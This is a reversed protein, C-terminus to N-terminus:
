KALELAELMQSPGMFEPLIVPSRKTDVPYIVNVPINARNFEDKLFDWANAVAEVDVIITEVNLEKFKENVEGSGPM